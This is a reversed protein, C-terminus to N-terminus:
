DQGQYIFEGTTIDVLGFQTSNFQVALYSGPLGVLLGKGPEGVRAIQPQEVRYPELHAQAFLDERWLIVADRTIAVMHRGDGEVYYLSADQKRRYAQAGPADLSYHTVYPGPGGIVSEPEYDAAARASAAVTSQSCDTSTNMPAGHLLARELGLSALGGLVAGVTTSLFVKNLRIPVKPEEVDGFLLEKPSGLSPAILTAHKSAAASSM